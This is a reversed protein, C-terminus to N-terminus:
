TRCNTSSKPLSKNQTLSPTCQYVNTEEMDVIVKFIDIEIKQRDTMELEELSDNSGNDHSADSDADSKYLERHDNTKNPQHSSPPDEEVKHDEEEEQQSSNEYDIDESSM